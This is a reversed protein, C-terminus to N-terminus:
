PAARDLRTDWVWFTSPAGGGTEYQLTWRRPLRLGDVNVFDEFSEEMRMQVDVQGASDQIDPSLGPRLVLSYTTGLHLFSDAEFDLSVQLGDPGGPVQYRVRHVPRGNRKKLGEYRLKPARGQLDLLPWARSLVGGVLGEKLIAGYANIFNGLPSRRTPQIFSVQVQDGDFVFSEGWYSSHDFKLDVRVRRAETAIRARGEINAAGGRRIEMRCVGELVRPGEGQPPASGLAELHRAVVAEATLRPEGARAGAGAIGCVVAAALATATPARRAV